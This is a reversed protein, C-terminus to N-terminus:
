VVHMGTYGSAKIAQDLKARLSDVRRQRHDITAQPAHSSTHADSLQQQAAQLDSGLLNIAHLWTAARVSAPYSQLLAIADDDMEDLQRVMEVVASVDAHHEAAQRLQEIQGSLDISVKPHINQTSQRGLLSIAIIVLMVLILALFIAIINDTAFQIIPM